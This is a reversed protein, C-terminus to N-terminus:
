RYNLSTARINSSRRAFPTWITIPAPSPTNQSTLRCARLTLSVSRPARFGSVLLCDAHGHHRGEFKIIKDRRTFGRALRIASMTAETGSNVMRVMDM